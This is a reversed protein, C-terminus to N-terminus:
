AGVLQQLINRQEPSELQMQRIEELKKRNDIDKSRIDVIRGQRDISQDEAGARQAAQEMLAQNAQRQAAENNIGEVVELIETKYATDSAKVYIPFLRYALQKDIALAKEYMADMKLFDIERSTAGYPATSIQLDYNARTVDNIIREIVRGQSILRMRQNITLMEPKDADETIDLVRQETCFHQINDKVNEGVTLQGFDQNDFFQQMNAYTQDRKAIFAKAPENASEQEGRAAKNYASIKYMMDESNQIHAFLGQNPNMEEEMKYKGINSIRKIGGIKPNEWDDLYDEIADNEVIYGRAVFKVLMELATSQAKNLASQPDVLSDVISQTLARDSHFDYCFFFTFMFKGNQVAYPADYVKLNLAPIVTTIWNQKALAWRPELGTPIQQMVSRVLENDERYGDTGLIKDTIDIDRQLRWDFMLMRRETRREHLELATFNGTSPNFWKSPDTRLYTNYEESSGSNIFYDAVADFLARFRKSIFKKSVTPDEVFFNRLENVIIDQLEPNNLAYNWLIQEFSIQDVDMIRQCEEMTIDSFGFDFLVRMPNVAKTVALGLPDREYTWGDKIIGWKAIMSDIAARSFHYDARGKSLFWNIVKTMTAADAYDGETTPKVELKKRGGKQMSSVGRIIPEILNWAYISREQAELKAKVDEPLQMSSVVMNYNRLMADQVNKMKTSMEVFYNMNRIVSDHDFPDFSIKKNPYKVETM